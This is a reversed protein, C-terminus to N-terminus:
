DEGAPSKIASLIVGILEKQKEEDGIKKDDDTAVYFVSIADPGHTNVKASVISVKMKALVRTVDYLLGIRNYARVDVVSLNEFLHNLIVVTPERGSQGFSEPKSMYRTRRSVIEGFDKEGNLIAILEQRFRELSKDDSLRSLNTGQVTITDLAVSNKFTNIQAEVIDMKEAALAGAVVSFFGLRETGVITLQGTQDGLNQQFRLVISENELQDVLLADEAVKEPYANRIYSEPAMKVFDCIADSSVALGPQKIVELTLATLQDENSSFVANGKILFQEARLYLDVLLKNKWDNWVGPGVASIDSYTLLYLIRLRDRNRVKRCFRKLTEPMLFDRRQATFSMLLHERVLFGVPGKLSLLGLRKLIVPTHTDKEVAHYDEARKGLDHLLLALKVVELDPQTRRVDVLLSAVSEAGTSIGELKRITTLTHEDTSYRHFMDFQSLGTIASFEPMFRELVGTDRFAELAKASNRLKLIKMLCLGAEKGEFLKSPADKCLKKLGQRLKPAPSLNEKALREAIRALLWLIDKNDDPPFQKAHLKASDSFLGDRDARIPRWFKRVKYGYAFDVVDSTFDDIVSTADYYKRMLEASVENDSGEFGEGRGLAPQFSQILVDELRKANFHLGNRLRLLFSHALKVSDIMRPDVAGLDVLDSLSNVTAKSRIAWWATHLDRLAGRSEKINPETLRMVKGHNRHREEMEEKKAIIFAGPNKRIVERLYKKHFEDYLSVNGCLFRSEVMATRATIDALGVAVTDAISRSSHGVTLGLDWLASLISPPPPSGGNKLLFLLDVDSFPNLLGRGYGGLAVLAGDFKETEAENFLGVITDDVAVCLKRCIDRGDAGESHLNFAEDRQEDLFKRREVTELTKINKM